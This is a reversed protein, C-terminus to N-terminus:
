DNNIKYTKTLTKYNEFLEVFIKKNDEFKVKLQNYKEKSKQKFEVQLDKNIYLSSLKDALDNPNNLDIKIVASPKNIGQQQVAPRM